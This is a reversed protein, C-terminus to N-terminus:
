NVKPSFGANVAYQIPASFMINNVSSGFEKEGVGSVLGQIQYGNGVLSYVSGGSDGELIADTYTSNYVEAKMMDKLYYLPYNGGGMVIYLHNQLVTGSSFGSKYGYKCITTGSPYGYSSISSIGVSNRVKNTGVYNGTCKIIAFEGYSNISSDNSNTNCRQSVVQGVNNSNRTFYPYGENGHGCTLIAEYGNYTGGICVSVGGGNSTNVIKDGGYLNSTCPKAYQGKNVEVMDKLGLDEIIEVVSKLDSDIVKITYRNNRSDVGFETLKYKDLLDVCTEELSNLQNLSHKVNKFSVYESNGCIENYKKEYDETIGVIEIVLMDDEIYEGGYEDPYVPLGMDDKEFYNWLKDYAQLAGEQRIMKEKVDEPIDKAFDVDGAYTTKSSVLSFLLVVSFLALFLRRKM